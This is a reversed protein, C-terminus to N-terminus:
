DGARFTKLTVDPLKAPERHSGIQLVLSFARTARDVNRGHLILPVLLKM